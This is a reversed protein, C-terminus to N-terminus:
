NRAGQFIVPHSPFASTGAAGFPRAHPLVNARRLRMGLLHHGVGGPLVKGDREPHERGPVPPVQGVQVEEGPQGVVEAVNRRANYFWTVHILIATITVTLLVLGTLAARLGLKSAARAKAPAAVPLTAASRSPRLGM